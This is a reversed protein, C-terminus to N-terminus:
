ISAPVAGMEKAIEKIILFKKKKVAEEAEFVAEFILSDINKRLENEDKVKVLGEKFDVFKKLKEFEM